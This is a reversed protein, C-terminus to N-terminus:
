DEQPGLPTWDWSGVASVQENVSRTSNKVDERDWKGVEKCLKGSNDELSAAQEWISIKPETEDLTLCYSMIRQLLSEPHSEPIPDSTSCIFVFVENSTTLIASTVELLIYFWLQYSEGRHQISIPYLHFSIGSSQAIARASSIRFSKLFWPTPKCNNIAMSVRLSAFSLNSWGVLLDLFLM